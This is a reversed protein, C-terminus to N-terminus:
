KFVVWRSDCDVALGVLAAIIHLFDKLSVVLRHRCLLLTNLLVFGYGGSQCKVDAVDMECHSSTDTLNGPIATLTRQREIHLDLVINNGMVYIILTRVAVYRQLANDVFKNIVHCAALFLTGITLCPHVCFFTIFGVECGQQFILAFGKFM